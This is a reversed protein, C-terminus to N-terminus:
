GQGPPEMGQLFIDIMTQIMTEQSLNLADKQRFVERTLIYAIIPGLFCRAAAAPDMRRLNGLDMQHSLYATVFAVGRGPGIRNLMDAVAPRRAAEGLMLKLMGTSVGTNLTALLKTAFLTLADRPPLDMLEDSHGLLVLVEGNAHLVERFLDSKDKFYHYILGPSGINAAQAIERNTAKEFGKTSFVKFAGEMIQRRKSEYDQEDRPPM